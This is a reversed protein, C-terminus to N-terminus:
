GLYTKLTSVSGRQRVDQWHVLAVASLLLLIGDVPYSYRLAVQILYNPLPFVLLVLAFTTGAIADRRFLYVLGFAGFVRTLM